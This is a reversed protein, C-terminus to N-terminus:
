QVESSETMDEEDMKERKEIDKMDEKLDSISDTLFEQLTNLDLNIL